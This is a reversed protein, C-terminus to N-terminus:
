KKLNWTPAWFQVGFMNYNEWFIQLSELFLILPKGVCKGLYLHFAFLSKTKCSGNQFAAGGELGLGSLPPVATGLRMAKRIRRAADVQHAPVRCRELGFYRCPERLLAARQTRRLLGKGKAPRM